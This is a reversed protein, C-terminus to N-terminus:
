DTASADTLQKVEDATLELDIAPMIQALQELNRASAIPAVVQPQAMLWALAVASQTTGHAAEFDRFFKGGTALALAVVSVGTLGCMAISRVMNSSANMKAAAQVTVPAIAACM